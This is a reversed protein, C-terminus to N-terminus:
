LHNMRLANERGCVRCESIRYPERSYESNEPNTSETVLQITVTHPTEQGCVECEEVMEDARPNTAM